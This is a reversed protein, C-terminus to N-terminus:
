PELGRESPSPAFTVLAVVLAVLPIRLSRM